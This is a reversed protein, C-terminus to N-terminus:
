LMPDEAPGARVPQHETVLLICAIVILGLGGLTPWRPATLPPQAPVTPAPLEEAATGGSAIQTATAQHTATALQYREGTPGDYSPRTGGPSRM